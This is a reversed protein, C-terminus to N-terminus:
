INKKLTKRKFSADNLKKAYEIAEEYSHISCPGSIVLLREDKKNIIDSIIQRSNKVFEFIKVDKKYKNLIDYHTQIDGIKELRTM